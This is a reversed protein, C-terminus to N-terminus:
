TPIPNLPPTFGMKRVVGMPLKQGEPCTDGRIRGAAPVGSELAAEEQQLDGRHEVKAM